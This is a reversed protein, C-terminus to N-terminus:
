NYIRKGCLCYGVLIKLKRIWYHFGCRRKKGLYFDRNIRYDLVKQRYSKLEHPEITKMVNSKGDRFVHKRREFLVESAYRIVATHYQGRMAINFRGLKTSNSDYHDRTYTAATPLFYPLYGNTYFNYYFSFVAHNQLFCGTPEYKPFCKKFVDARVCYTSEHSEMFTGLWFPFFDFKQQPPHNSFNPRRIKGLTGDESMNQTLGYVLSVEIDNDLIEVCKGFWDRDLYGDSICCFVIYDGRSIELAKYFGEDAHRDPESIWRIHKYEKLIKVTDDTSQCDVVIHEYDKFNQQLVSEITERLFRGM